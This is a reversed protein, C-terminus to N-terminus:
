NELGPWGTNGAARREESTGRPDPRVLHAWEEVVELAPLGHEAIFSRLWGFCQHLGDAEGDHSEFTQHVRDGRRQLVASAAWTRDDGYWIILRCHTGAAFSHTVWTYGSVLQQFHWTM